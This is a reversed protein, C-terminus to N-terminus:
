ADFSAGWDCANILAFSENHKLAIDMEHICRVVTQDNQFSSVTNGAADVYSASPSTEIEVNATEGIVVQSYDGYYIETEDGDNGLNRPIANTDGYKAGYLTGAAMEQMFVPYGDTTLLSMLFFKIRPNFMWGMDLQPINASEVRYMATMLNTVVQALTPGSTATIINDAAIRNKIGRPQGDVGTGRIMAADEALAAVAMMDDRVLSEFGAPTRKLLDNSIPTIIGLKKAELKVAGFSEESVTIRDNEGMWYATSTGNLKGIQLNGGSMDVTRAGLRRVVTKNYLYGIFDSSYEIPILVGGATVTSASLAKAIYPDLEGREVAQEAAKAMDGGKANRAIHAVLGAVSEGSFASKGALTPLVDALEDAAKTYQGFIHSQAAKRADQMTQRKGSETKREWERWNREIMEKIQAAGEAGLFEKAEGIILDKVQQKTMSVANAEAM